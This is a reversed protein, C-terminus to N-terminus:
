ATAGAYTLYTGRRAHKAAYLATDARALLVTESTGDAPFSASGITVGITVTGASLMFPAAIAAIIRAAIRQAEPADTFALLAVFEDGGTRAVIDGDRLAGRLREAVARLLDDGAPHGFRDNVNKFGDLDLGLIVFEGGGGAHRSILEEIALSLHQRNPLGTLVDHLALFRNHEEAHM